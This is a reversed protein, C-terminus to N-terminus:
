LLGKFTEKVEELYLTMLDDLYPAYMLRIDMPTEIFPRIMNRDKYGIRNENIYLFATDGDLELTIYLNPLLKLENEYNKIKLAIEDLKKYLSKKIEDINDKIM